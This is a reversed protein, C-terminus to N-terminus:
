SFLTLDIKLNFILTALTGLFIQVLSVPLWQFYHNVLNSFLVILILGLVTEVIAM